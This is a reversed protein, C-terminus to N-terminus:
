LFAASAMSDALTAPNSIKPQAPKDAHRGCGVLALMLPVVLVALATPRRLLTTHM